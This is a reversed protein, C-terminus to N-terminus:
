TPSMIEEDFSYVHKDHLFIKSKGLKLTRPDPPQVDDSRVDGVYVNQHSTGFFDSFPAGTRAIATSAPTTDKVSTLPRSIHTREVNIISAPVTSANAKRSINHARNLQARSLKRMQTAPLRRPREYIFSSSKHKFQNKKERTRM